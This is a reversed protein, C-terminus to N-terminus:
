SIYPISQHPLSPASHRGCAKPLLHPKLRPTATGMGLWTLVSSPPHPAHMSPQTTGMRVQTDKPRGCRASSSVDLKSCHGPQSGSRLRSETWRWCCEKRSPTSPARLSRRSPHFTNPFSYLSPLPPPSATLSLSLVSCSVSPSHESPCLSASLCSRCPLLLGPQLVLPPSLGASTLPRKAEKYPHYNPLHSGPLLAQRSSLPFM